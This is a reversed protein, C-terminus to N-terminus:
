PELDPPWSGVGRCGALYRLLDVDVPKLLVRNSVSECFAREQEDVQLDEVAPPVVTPPRDQRRPVVESRMM